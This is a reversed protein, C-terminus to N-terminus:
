LSVAVRPATGTSHPAIRSAHVHDCAVPSTPRFGAIRFCILLEQIGFHQRTEFRELTVAATIEEAGISRIFHFEYDDIEEIGDIRHLAKGTGVVGNGHELGFRAPEQGPDFRKRPM